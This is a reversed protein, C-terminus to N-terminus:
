RRRPLVCFAILGQALYYTPLTWQDAPWGVRGFKGLAITIDSLMFIIAGAAVAVAAGDRLRTARGAAQAAMLAIVGVYVAVPAKLDPAVGPWIFILVLAAFAAIAALAPRSPLFGVGRSFAALYFGHAILFAVLGPLFLSPNLLLTDGMLSAALAGLVLRKVDKPGERLAFALILLAMAAPKAVGMLRPWDLAYAACTSAAAFVYLAEGISIRGDLLSGLAWLAAALSVFVVLGNALPLHPAALLFAATAGIMAVLAALAIVSAARSAPPDYLPVAKPNYRPPPAPGRLNAPVWGPPAFWVRIKDRWDDARRCLDAMTRYYALNASIPDFTGLGGRVGYVPPEVEDEYTGFLRDWIILIGGYNKDLYRDNVGHHVRHNSPSAFVRDFWGLKGVLETHIWFQYLLDILGVAVFVVPPVGAVAMPLYFIWGLLVGSSPQRLATSLNFAESQHHVVHAAWFIGVEHDIRHNWYYFFDYAILAGVWVRWDGAQLSVLAFHNYVLVYVGVSLALMFVGSIQSLIGATLSGVADNLRYVNRGLALGIGFEAAMLAVFVPIAYVIVNM